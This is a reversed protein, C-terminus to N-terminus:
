GVTWGDHRLGYQEVRGREAIEAQLRENTQTLEVTRTTVLDELHDRYGELERNQVQLQKQMARLAVHTEVRAVVEDTQFTKTVYDVGGVEFAKVKDVPADLASLFLVPIEHTIEDAQNVICLYMTRAHLDVGCYYTHQGTYYRM